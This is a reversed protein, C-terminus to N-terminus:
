LDAGLVQELERITEAIYFERFRRDYEENVATLEQQTMDKWAREALVETDIWQQASRCRGRWDGLPEFAEDFFAFVPIRKNGRTLYRNMLAPNADRLHIRLTMGDVADALRAVLALNQVVDPCWGEGIALVQLPTRQRFFEVTEESLTFERYFTEMRAVNKSSCQLFVTWTMGRAFWDRPEWDQRQGTTM